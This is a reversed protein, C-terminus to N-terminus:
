ALSRALDRLTFFKPDEGGRCVQCVIERTNGKTVLTSVIMCIALSKPSLIIKQTSMIKRSEWGVLTSYDIEGEMGQLIFEFQLVSKIKKDPKWFIIDNDSHKEYKDFIMKDPYVISFLPTYIHRIYMQILDIKNADDYFVVKNKDKDYANLHTTMKGPHFSIYPNFYEIKESKRIVVQQTGRKFPVTMNSWVLYGSKKPFYFYFSGDNRTEISGARFSQNGIKFIIARKM